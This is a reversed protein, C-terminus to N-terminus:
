FVDLEMIWVVFLLDSVNVDTHISLVLGCFSISKENNIFFRWIIFMSNKFKEAFFLTQNAKFSDEDIFKFVSVEVLRKNQASERHM